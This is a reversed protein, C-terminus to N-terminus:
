RRKLRYGARAEPTPEAEPTVPLTWQNGCKPCLCSRGARETTYRVKQGCQPCWARYGGVRTRATSRHWLWGGVGCSLMGGLLLLFGTDM